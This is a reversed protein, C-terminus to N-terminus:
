TEDWDEDLEEDLDWSESFSGLRGEVADKHLRKLWKVDTVIHMYSAAMLHLVSKPVEGVHAHYAGRMLEAKAKAQELKEAILGALKAQDGLYAFPLATFLPHEIVKQAKFQELLLEQFLDRGPPMIRYVTRDPRSAERVVRAVDICDDKRLQDVAYYLSGEQFKIFKHFNREKVLQIMEYPHMDREMLLGLILLKLSM